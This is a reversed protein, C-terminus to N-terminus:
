FIMEIGKRQMVKQLSEQDFFRMLLHVHNSMLCYHYLRFSYEGKMDALLGLYAEYDIRDGFLM